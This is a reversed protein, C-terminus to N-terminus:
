VRNVTIAHGKAPTYEIAYGFVDGLVPTFGNPVGIAQSLAANGALAAIPAGMICSDIGLDTAALVMNEIVIGGNAYDMGERHPPRSSVVILTKAGYNLNKRTGIAAFVAEEAQLFIEEILKEDQM